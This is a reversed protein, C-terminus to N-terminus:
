DRRCLRRFPLPLQHFLRLFVVTDYDTAAV